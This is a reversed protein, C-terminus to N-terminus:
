LYWDEGKVADLRQETPIYFTEHQEEDGEEFFCFGHFWIRIWITSNSQNMLEDEEFRCGAALLARAEGLQLQAGASDRDSWKEQLVVGRQCLMLLYDRNYITKPRAM